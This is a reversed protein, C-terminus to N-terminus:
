QKYINKMEQKQASNYIYGAQVIYPGLECNLERKVRESIAGETIIAPYKALVRLFGM